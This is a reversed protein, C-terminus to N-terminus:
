LLPMIIITSLGNNDLTYDIYIDRNSFQKQNATWLRRLNQKVLKVNEVTKYADPSAQGDMMERWRGSAPPPPGSVAATSPPPCDAGGEHWNGQLVEQPQFKGRGRGASCKYVLTSLSSKQTTHTLLVIYGRTGNVFGTTSYTTRIM